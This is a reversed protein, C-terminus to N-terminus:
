GIKRWKLNLAKIFTGTYNLDENVLADDAWFVCEDEVFLCASYIERSYNEQAPRLNMSILGEFCLEAVGYWGSNDFTVMLRRESYDEVYQMKDLSSDHFGAFAKFFIDADTQTKIYTWQDTDKPERIQISCNHKSVIRDGIINQMFDFNQYVEDYGCFQKIIASIGKSRFFRNIKLVKAKDYTVWEDRDSNIVEILPVLTARQSKSEKDLYDVLEFAESRPNYVINREYYGTDLKGYIISKYFLGTTKDFVRAFM